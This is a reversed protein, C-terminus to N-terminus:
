IGEYGKATAGLWASKPNCWIQWLINLLMGWFTQSIVGCFLPGLSKFLLFIM